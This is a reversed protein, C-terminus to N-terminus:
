LLNILRFTSMHFHNIHIHKVKEIQEDLKPISQKEDRAIKSKGKASDM